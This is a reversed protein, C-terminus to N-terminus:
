SSRGRNEAVPPKSVFDRLKDCHIGLMDLEQQYGAVCVERAPIGLFLKQSHM